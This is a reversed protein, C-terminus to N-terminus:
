FPILIYVRQVSWPTMATIEENRPPLAQRNGLKLIDGPFIPSSTTPSVDTQLFVWALSLVPVSTMGMTVDWTSILCRSSKELVSISNSFKVQQIVKCYIGLHCPLARNFCVFIAVLVVQYTPHCVLQQGWCGGRRWMEELENFPLLLLLLPPLYAFEKFGGGWTVAEIPRM